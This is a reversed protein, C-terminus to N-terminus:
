RADQEPPDSSEGRGLLRQHGSHRGSGSLAGGGLMSREEGDDLYMRSRNIYQQGGLRSMFSQWRHNINYILHYMRGEVRLFSLGSPHRYGGSVGMACFAFMDNYARARELFEINEYFPATLPPLHLVNWAGKNCCWQLM